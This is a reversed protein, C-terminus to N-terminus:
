GATKKRACAISVPTTASTANVSKSATSPERLCASSWGINRYTGCAIMIVATTAPTTVAWCYTPLSPAASLTKMSQAVTPKRAPTPM